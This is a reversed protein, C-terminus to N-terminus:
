HKVSRCGVGEGCAIALAGAARPCGRNISHPAPSRLLRHRSRRGYLRLIHSERFTDWHKKAASQARWGKELGVWPRGAM